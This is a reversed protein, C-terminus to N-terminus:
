PTISLVYILLPLVHLIVLVVEALVLLLCVLSSGNSSNPRCLSLVNPRAVAVVLVVSFLVIDLTLILLVVCM